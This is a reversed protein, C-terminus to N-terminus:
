YLLENADGQCNGELCDASPCSYATGADVVFYEDPLLRTSSWPLWSALLYVGQDVLISVPLEDRINGRSMTLLNNHMGRVLHKTLPCALASHQM